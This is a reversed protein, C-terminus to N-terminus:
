RCEAPREAAPLTGGGCQWEIGADATHPILELTTGAITGAAASFIILLRGEAGLTLSGRDGLIPPEKQGLETLNVPPRGHQQWFSDVQQQYPQALNLIEGVAAQHTGPPQARPWLWLVAVVLVGILIALMPVALRAAWSRQRPFVPPPEYFPETADVLETVDPEESNSELIDSELSDSELGNLAQPYAPTLEPTIQTADDTIVDVVDAFSESAPAAHLTETRTLAAPTLAPEEEPLEFEVWADAPPPQPPEAPVPVAVVEDSFQMCAQVVAEAGTEELIEHYHGATTQDVSTKMRVAGDLLATAQPLSSGTLQALNVIVERRNHGDLLRGTLFVDFLEQNM